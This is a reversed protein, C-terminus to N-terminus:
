LYTVQSKITWGSTNTQVNFQAQATVISVSATVVTTSGLDLTSNDTYQVSGGAWIALVEGTRANTGNTVTYLYKAGSYSGTADTFLNNVGVISSAVTATKIQSLGVTVSGTVLMNNSFRSTGNVDLRFGADTTGGVILNGGTTLRALAAGGSLATRWIHGNAADLTYGSNGAIHLAINASNWTMTTGSRFIRYGTPDGSFFQISPTNSYLNITGTTGNDLRLETGQV